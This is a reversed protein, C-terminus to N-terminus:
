VAVIKTDINDPGQKASDANEGGQCTITLRDTTIEASELYNHNCIALSVWTQDLDEGVSCQYDHQDNGERHM